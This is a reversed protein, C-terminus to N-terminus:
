FLSLLLRQNIIRTMKCHLICSTLLLHQCFHSAPREAWPNSVPPEGNSRECQIATSLILSNHSTVTLISLLFCRVGDRLARMEELKKALLLRIDDLSKCALDLEEIVKNDAVKDGRKIDYEVAEARFAKFRSLTDAISQEFLNLCGIAWFYFRSRRFSADDYLLHVYKDPNMITISEADCEKRITEFLEQWILVLIKATQVLICLVTDEFDGGRQPRWIKVHLGCQEREVTQDPLIVTVYGM